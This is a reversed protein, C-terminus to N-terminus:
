RSFNKFRVLLMQHADSPIYMYKDGKIHLRKSPRYQGKTAFIVDILKSCAKLSRVYYSDQCPEYVKISHTCHPRASYVLSYSM